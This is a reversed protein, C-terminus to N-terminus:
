DVRDHLYDNILELFESEDPKLGDLPPGFVMMRKVITPIIVGYRPSCSTVTCYFLLVRSIAKKGAFISEFGQPGNTKELVSTFFKEYTSQIIMSADDSMPFPLYQWDGSDKDLKAPWTIDHPVLNKLSVIIVGRDVDAKEIQEVGDRVRELFTLPNETHSVKCAIGWRKGKFKGIADPNKGTSKGPSDFALDSCIRFLVTAMFLEFVKNNVDKEAPSATPHV